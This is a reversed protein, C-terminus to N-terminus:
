RFDILEFGKYREKSFKPLVINDKQHRSIAIEVKDNGAVYQVKDITIGDSETFIYITEGSKKPSLRIATATGITCEEINYDNKLNELGGKSNLLENEYLDARDVVIEKSSSRVEYRVSDAIFVESNAIRMYSNNGSVILAGNQQTGDIHLVFEIKYAGMSAYHRTISELRELGSQGFASFQAAFCLLIFFLVRRM